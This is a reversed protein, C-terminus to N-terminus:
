DSLECEFLNSNIENVVEANRPVQHRKAQDLGGGAGLVRIKRFL